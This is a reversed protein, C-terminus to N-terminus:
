KSVTAPQKSRIAEFMQPILMKSEPVLSNYHERLVLIIEDYEDTNNSAKSAFSVISGIWDQATPTPNFLILYNLKHIFAENNRKDQVESPKIHHYFSAIIEEANKM